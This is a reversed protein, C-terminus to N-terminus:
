KFKLSRPKNIHWKIAELISNISNLFVKEFQLPYDIIYSFEEPIVDKFAIVHTKLLNPEKIYCFKIKDKEKITDYKKQLGMNNIANNYAMAAFSNIPISKTKNVYKELFSVSMATSIDYISLNFFDNKVEKVYKNLEAESGRLIIELSKNLRQKAWAPTSSSIIQLGTIKIKPDKYRVGESDYVDVAYRKKGTWIGKSAIVERKMKIINKMGSTYHFVEQIASDIVKQIENESFENILDCKEHNSLSQDKIYKGLTLYCSDTDSAITYDVNITNFKINLFENVRKSIFRIIFQGTVTISEALRIDFFSFYQSGLTGYASNLQVKKTIQLIEYKRIQNITSAKLIKLEELSLKEIDQM